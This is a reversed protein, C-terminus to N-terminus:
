RAKFTAAGLPRDVLVSEPLNALIGKPMPKGNYTTFTEAYKVQPSRQRGRMQAQSVKEKVLNDGDNQCKYKRLMEIKDGIVSTIDVSYLPTWARTQCLLVEYYYFEARCKARKLAVYTAAATMVHDPHSDVPWHTFVAVPKYKELIAKVQEVASPSAFARADKENIFHPTAGLFASADREEQERIRGTSGDLFGAEGLGYEGRTYDVIHLNYKGTKALLFAIGAFGESDDPHAGIFVINPRGEVYFPCANTAAEAAFHVMFATLAFLFLGIKTTKRTM